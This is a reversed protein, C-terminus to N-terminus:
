ASPLLGEPVGREAGAPRLAPAAESTDGGGPRSGAGAGGWAGM